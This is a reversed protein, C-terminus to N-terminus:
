VVPAQPPGLKTLKQHAAGRDEPGQPRGARGTQTAEQEDQASSGAQGLLKPPTLRHDEARTETQIVSFSKSISTGSM